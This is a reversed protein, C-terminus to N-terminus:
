LPLNPIQPFPPWTLASKTTRVVTVVVLLEFPGSVRINLSRTGLVLPQFFLSPVGSLETRSGGSLFYISSHALRVERPQRLIFPGSHAQPYSQMGRGRNSRGLYCM